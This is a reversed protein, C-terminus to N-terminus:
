EVILTAGNGRLWEGATLTVDEVSRKLACEWVTAVRWGQEMLQAVNRADRSVNGEFKVRWFDENSKPSTTYRCNDHRHWFCGHVFLVARYKPFVLDPSGPLGRVHLRYRFGAAFMASRLLLEPRTNKGRISAMMRSRQPTPSVRM